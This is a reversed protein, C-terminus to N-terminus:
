LVMLPIGHIRSRLTELARDIDAQMKELDPASVSQSLGDASISSSAPLMADQLIRLMAMRQILDLLDPYNVAADKLGATYRVEIFQPAAQMGMASIMMSGMPLSFVSGAPIFRVHGYKKDLKIWAPPVTFVNGMTPFAFKISEVAIVPKQRLALYTWGGPQLLDQDYDYGPDVAWPSDQLADIEAQTPDAPFLVTPTLFCHLERQADIEAALFKDWIYDPSPTSRIYSLIFPLREVTFRRVAVSRVFLLSKDTM